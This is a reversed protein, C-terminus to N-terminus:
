QAIFRDSQNRMGKSMSTALKTKRWVPFSSRQQYEFEPLSKGFGELPQRRMIRYGRAFGMAVLHDYFAEFAILFEPESVDDKLTFLSHFLAVSKKEM